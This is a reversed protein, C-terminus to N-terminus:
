NIAVWWAMNSTDSAQGVSSAIGGAYLYTIGNVDIEDGWAASTPSAYAVGKLTGRHHGNNNPATVSLLIDSQRFLHIPLLVSKTGAKYRDTITPAAPRGAFLTGSTSIRGTHVITANENGLSQLFYASYPNTGYGNQVLAYPAFDILDPNTVASQFAGFYWVTGVGTTGDKISFIAYDEDVVIFWNTTTTPVTIYNSSASPAPSTGSTSTTTLNYSLTGYGFPGSLTNQGDGFAIRRLAKELGINGSINGGSVFTSTVTSTITVTTKTQAIVTGTINFSTPNMGSIFVTDGLSFRFSNTPTYTFTVSTGNGVANTVAYRTAGTATAGGGATIAGTTQNLLIFQNAAPVSQVIGSSVNADTDTAGSITVVDGAVFGHNTATTYTVPRGVVGATLASYTVGTYVLATSDAQYATGIYSNFTHVTTSSPSNGVLVAFGSGSNNVFVSREFTGNVFGDDVISWTSQGAAIASTFGSVMAKRVRKAYNAEPTTFTGQTFYRAM